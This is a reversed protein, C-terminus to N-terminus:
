QASSCLALSDRQSSEGVPSSKTGSPVSLDTTYLMGGLSICLTIHNVMQIRRCALLANAPSVLGSMFIDRLDIKVACLRSAHAGM